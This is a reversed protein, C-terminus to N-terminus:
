RSPGMPAIRALEPCALARTIAGNGGMGLDGSAAPYGGGAPLPGAFLFGALQFADYGLAFLRQQERTRGPLVDALQARVGAYRGGADVMMPMDCTRLGSLDADGAGNDFAQATAFVPLDGLRQFRLQPVILRGQDAHAALFVFDLDDRRRPDFEIKGGIVAALAARREDSEPLGMLARIPASIERTDGGYRQSSVLEGGLEALRRSFAGLIREGWENQPTLAAARRLGAAIAQEAAARAEDEPALGLQYFSAPAYQSGELYNLALVPVPPSGQAAMAAVSEKRLPGVLFRAGDSVALHVALRLSENSSGADYVRVAPRPAAQAYLAALFGDRVMDAPAAYPGRAPLLLALPTEPGLPGAAPIERAHPIAPPQAAVAAPAGPHQPVPREQRAAECSVLLWTSAALAALARARATSNM